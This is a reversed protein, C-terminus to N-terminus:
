KKVKADKLYEKEIKKVLERASNRGEKRLLFQRVAVEILIATNRGSAVPIKVMPFSKGKIDFLEENLKLRDDEKEDGKGLHIVLEIKKSDTVSSVGFIEKINIIGLGRVEMLNKTLSPSSGILDGGEERLEVVDDSVLRHGRSILDLASESKGLGSEGTILVGVGFIDMLVGPIKM